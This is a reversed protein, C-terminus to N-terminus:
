DLYITKTRKQGKLSVLRKEGEDIPEFDFAEPQEQILRFVTEADIPNDCIINGEGFGTGGDKTECSYTITYTEM